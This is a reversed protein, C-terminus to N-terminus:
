KKTRLLIKVAQLRMAEEPTNLWSHLSLAKKIAQLEWRAYHGAIAMAQDSTM